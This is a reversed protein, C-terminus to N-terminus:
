LSPAGVGLDQARKHLVATQRRVEEVSARAATLERELAARHEPDDGADVLARSV